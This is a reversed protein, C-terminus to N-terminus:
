GRQAVRRDMLRGRGQTFRIRSLDPFARHAVRSLLGRAVLLDRIEESKDAIRGPIFDIHNIGGMNSFPETGEALLVATSEIGIRAHCLGIELIVNQRARALGTQGCRDDPTMVAFAFRASNLMEQWRTSVVMGTAPPSQLSRLVVERCLSM